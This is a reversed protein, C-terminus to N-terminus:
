TIVAEPTAAEKSVIEKFLEVIRLLAHEFCQAAQMRQTTQFPMPMPGDVLATLMIRNVIYMAPIAVMIMEFEFHYKYGSNVVEVKVYYDSIEKYKGRVTGTLTVDGVRSSFNRVEM